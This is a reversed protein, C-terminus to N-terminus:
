IAENSNGNDTVVLLVISIRAFNIESHGFATCANRADVVLLRNEGLHPTVPTGGNLM